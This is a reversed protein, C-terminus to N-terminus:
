RGGFINKFQQEVQLRNYYAYVLSFYTTTCLEMFDFHEKNSFDLVYEEYGPNKKDVQLIICGDIQIGELSLMYKYAALQLFYKYSIHNSTKFDGLYLRGNIKILLDLTGGFYQCTLQKEMAIVNVDNKNIIDNYWIVFSQVGNQISKLARINNTDCESLKYSSKEIYQDIFEHTWTGIFSAEDLVDLYKKRQYLGINNAWTMLYDEHLMASLIETVRPVFVGNYTYKGDLLINKNTIEDLLKKIM